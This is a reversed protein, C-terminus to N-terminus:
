RKFSRSAETIKTVTGQQFSRPKGPLSEALSAIYEGSAVSVRSLPNGSVAAYMQGGWLGLAAFPTRDCKCMATEIRQKRSGRCVEILQAFAESDCETNFNLGHVSAIRRYEGIMGNHVIWGGDSPHPHNNCNDQPTGHTAYRTHGIIAVADECMEFAFEPIRGPAKFMRIRGEATRWAFGYAHGGRRAETHEAIEQFLQPDFKLGVYGFLGCM